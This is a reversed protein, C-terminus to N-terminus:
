YMKELTELDRESLEQRNAGFTSGDLKTMTPINQDRAFGNYSPYLMISDFDFDGVTKSWPARIFNHWQKFDINGWNVKIYHNRDRRTHEHYVGLAHALEHIMGGRKCWEPFNITQKGGKRGIFSNCGGEKGNYKIYIYDKQDTRPIFRLNTLQHYHNMASTIDEQNPISPDIVYPIIGKKWKSMKFRVITGKIAKQYSYPYVQIDGEVIPGDSTISYHEKSQNKFGFHPIFDTAANALSIYCVFIILISRFM